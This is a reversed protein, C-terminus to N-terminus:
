DVQLINTLLGGDMLEVVEWFCNVLGPKYMKKVKQVNKSNLNTSPHAVFDVQLIKTLSGGDMLEMVVWLCNVSGPLNTSPFPYNIM